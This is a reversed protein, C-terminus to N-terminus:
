ISCPSIFKRARRRKHPSPVQKKEPVKSSTQLALFLQEAKPLPIEDPPTTNHTSDIM